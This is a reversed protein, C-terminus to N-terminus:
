SGDSLDVIIVDALATEVDEVFYEYHQVEQPGNRFNVLLEKIMQVRETDLM